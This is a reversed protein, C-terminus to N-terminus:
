RSSGPGACIEGVMEVYRSVREANMPVLPPYWILGCGDRAPDLEAGAAPLASKWYALPLAVESPKGEILQMAATLTRARKALPGHRLRPVRRIWLDLRSAPATDSFALRSVSPRLIRRVARRAARVIEPTGYLAGFGTWAMVRHQAAIEAVIEGPLIGSAGVRDHPYPVTM